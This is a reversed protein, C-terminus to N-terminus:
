KCNKKTKNVTAAAVLDRLIACKEYEETETFHDIMDQAIAVTIGSAVEIDNGYITKRPDFLLPIDPHNSNLLKTLSVQGTAIMYTNDMATTLLQQDRQDQQITKIIDDM